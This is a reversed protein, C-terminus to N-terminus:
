RSVASKVFWKKIGKPIGYADYHDLFEDLLKTHTKNKEKALEKFRKATDADFSISSFSSPNNM